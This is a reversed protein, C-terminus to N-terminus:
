ILLSSLKIKAIFKAENKEGYDQIYGIIGHTIRVYKNPHIDGNLHCIYLIIRPSTSGRLLPILRHTFENLM